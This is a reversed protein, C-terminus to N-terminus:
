HTRGHLSTKEVLHSYSLGLAEFRDMDFASRKLIHDKWVKLSTSWSTSILNINSSTSLLFTITRTHFSNTIMTVSNKFRHSQIIAGTKTSFSPWSYNMCFILLSLLLRLLILYTSFVDLSFSVLNNPHSMTLPPTKTFGVCCDFTLGTFIKGVFKRHTLISEHLSFVILSEKSLNLTSNFNRLM